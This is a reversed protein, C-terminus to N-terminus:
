FTATDTNDFTFDGTGTVTAGAISLLLSRISLANLEGPAMDEPRVAEALAPDFLDQDLTAKGALDIDLDAADRPLVAGPDFMNWIIDDLQLGRLKLGLGFDQQEESKSIPMQLRFGSEAMQGGLPIPFDPVVVSVVTGIQGLDYVVGDRGLSVALTGGSSQTTMEFPGDASTASVRGQGSAYQFRGGGSMGAQIMAAPDSPDINGPLNGSGQMTVGSVEGSVAGSDNSSPDTFQFEYSIQDASVNQEVLRPDGNTMTSLARMGTAVMQGSVADSGLADGEVTIDDLVVSMSSAAYDYIQNEPTGSALMRVDSHSITLDLDFPGDADEGRISMPFTDPLDISVTGDGNDSLVIEAFSIRTQTVPDEAEFLLEVNSARVGNGTDAETATVDYGFDAFYAKWEDWVERASIEAAASQALVLCALATYGTRRFFLTM